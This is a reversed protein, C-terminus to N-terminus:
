TLNVVPEPIEPIEKFSELDFIVQPEFGYEEVYRVKARIHAWVNPKVSILPKYSCLHGIFQIDNACCTMAPRGAVFTNKPLEDSVACICNFEVTKGDYRRGNDFTDIYFIGFDEDNIKIEDTLKYPLEDVFSINKGERDLAIYAANPNIIKLSRKYGAMEPTDECRNLIVIDSSKIMNVFKQRMNAFYTKFTTADIITFSNEVLIYPPFKLDKDEWMANMEFFIAHPKYKKVLENIKEVTFEEPSSFIYAAANCNKLESEDYEEEGDEQSLILVKGIDGFDGNKLSDCIFKTKGSEIIGNIVVAPFTRAM